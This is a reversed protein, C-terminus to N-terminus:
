RVASVEARDRRRRLLGGALGFGGLMMAWTTPEPTPSSATYPTISFANIDLGNNTFFDADLTITPDIMSYVSGGDDGTYGVGARANLTIKTFAVSTPTVACGGGYCGFGFAALTLDVTYPVDVNATVSGPGYCYQGSDCGASFGVSGYESGAEFSVSSDTNSTGSMRFVGTAHAVVASRDSSVIIPYFAQQQASGTIALGLLYEYTASMRLYTQGGPDISGQAIVVPANGGTVSTSGSSTAGNLTHTGTGTGSIQDGGYYDQIEYSGTAASAASALTAAVFAMAATGFPRMM